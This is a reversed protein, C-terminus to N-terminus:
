PGEELMIMAKAALGAVRRMDQRSPDGATM